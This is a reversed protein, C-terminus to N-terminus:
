VELYKEMLKHPPAEIGIEKGTVPHTFSLKWAHLLQTSLGYKKNIHDIGYVPDGLIPAHVHQAHVRIQHTRGTHLDIEVLSLPPSKKLIKFTSQAPKGDDRVCMKKRDKLSRGIPADICGEKPIGYTVALYTKKVQRSAFQESLAHQIQPNKAILLVGTTDKDIRHVIGPRLTDDFTTFERYRHMLANVVTGNPTGPAPHVAMGLPKNILLLYEDEYLIDLPINEPNANIEPLPLFTIQITDGISPSIRKKCPIGNRSIAEM